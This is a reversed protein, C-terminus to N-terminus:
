MESHTEHAIEKTTLEEISVCRLGFKRLLLKLAWRLARIADTGPAARLTVVFTPGGIPKM